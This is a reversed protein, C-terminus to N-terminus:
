LSTVRRLTMSKRIRPHSITLKVRTALEDIKTQLHEKKKHKFHRKVEGRVNNLNDVNNQNPDQLWQM